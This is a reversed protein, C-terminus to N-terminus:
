TRSRRRAFSSSTGVQQQTTHLSVQIADVKGVLALHAQWQAMGLRYLTTIPHEQPESQSGIFHKYLVDVAEVQYRRLKEVQEPGGGIKDPNIHTLWVPVQALPL